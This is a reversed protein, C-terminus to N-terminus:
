VLKIIKSLGFKKQLTDQHTMVSILIFVCSQVIAIFYELFNLVILFITLIFTLFFFGGNLFMYGYGSFIHVLIHGSLINAFLRISLSFPRICFSIFEIYIVVPAM